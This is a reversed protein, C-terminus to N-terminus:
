LSSIQFCEKVEKPRLSHQYFSPWFDYKRRFVAGRSEKTAIEGQSVDDYSNEKTELSM